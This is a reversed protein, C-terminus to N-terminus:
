IVRWQVTSNVYILTTTTFPLDITLDEDLGLIQQGNRGITINQFDGALNVSVTEGDLPNAPLTVTIGDALVSLFEGPELTYNSSTTNVVPYRRNNAVKRSQSSVQTDLINWRGDYKSLSFGSYPIDIVIGDGANFGDISDAPDPNVTAIRGATEYDGTTIFTFWDGNNVDALPPLTVTVNANNYGIFVYNNVNADTLIVNSSIPTAGYIPFRKADTGLKALTVAGNLIKDTIVAGNQIKLSTVANNGIGDKPIQYVM